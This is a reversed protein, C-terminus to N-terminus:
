NGCSYVMSSCQALNPTSPTCANDTSNAYRFELTHSGAAVTYYDSTQGQTLSTVLVGDLIINYTKNASRNSYSIQATNNAACKQTECHTGTYGSPCTCSGDSCVGGNQCSVDACKDKTVCSLYGVSFFVTITLFTTVFITRVM